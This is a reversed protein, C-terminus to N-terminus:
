GEDSSCECSTLSEVNQLGNHIIIAAMDIALRYKRGRIHGRHLKKNAECFQFLQEVVFKKVVKGLYNLLSIVRYSKVLTRHKKNPKEM